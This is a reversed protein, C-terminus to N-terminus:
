FKACTIRVWDPIDVSNDSTKRCGIGWGSGDTVAATDTQGNVQIYSTPNCAGGGSVTHYGSPCWAIYVGGFISCSATGFSTCERTILGLKASTVSNSALDAAVITGDTIEASEITSGLYSTSAPLRAAPITGTTIKSADLAPIDAATLTSGSTVRGKSDVVVKTFTGATVGSNSLTAVGTNSLTLDGSVARATAINSGNGVLVQASSLTTTLGDSIGYGAITTPKSTISSWAPTVTTQSANTLRGQADVTFASVMTGSGYSGATVATNALSVTASGSTAGGTLGTGAVIDTIDGAGVSPTAWTALGSADSTLVKGAGPTGGTIKIQGAVELKAGPSITGIGVQGSPDVRFTEVGNATLAINGASPSYIGTDGDFVFSYPPGSVSNSPQIYARGAAVSGIRLPSDISTGGTNVSMVNTGSVAISLDVGNSYLGTDSNSSFTFTPNAASGFTSSSHSSARAEGNVHLKALPSAVGIGVNGTNSNSIDNGSVTWQSSVGSVQSDVYAKVAKQSAVKTDSDAALSANTDLYSFPMQADNTVNGLGVATANLTQFTKDGRWYQATTGATISPEKGAITAANTSINGSNTAIDSANTAIDTTNTGVQSLTSNLGANLDAPAITGDAIASTTVSGASVTEDPAVIWKAGDWKLVDNISAGTTDVDAIDNLSSTAKNIQAWTYDNTQPTVVGSRGNFTKVGTSNDIKAWNTGDFIAWDGISWSTIGSLNTVGANSIIYYEGAISAAPAATSADWDGLYILGSLDTPVWTTGNFQMVQGSTAGMSSLHNAGIEGDGIKSATVSGDVLNFTVAVSTAGSATEVVLNLVTNLALTMASSASLILESSTNSIVSLNQSNIKVSKLNNFNSGSVKLQDNELLINSIEPKAKSNLLKIDVLTDGKELPSMCSSM